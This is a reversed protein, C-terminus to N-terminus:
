PMGCFPGARQGVAKVTYYDKSIQTVEFGDKLKM